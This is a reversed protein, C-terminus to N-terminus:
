SASPLPDIRTSQGKHQERVARSLNLSSGLIALIFAALGWPLVHTERSLGFALLGMNSYIFTISGWLLNAQDHERRHLYSFTAGVIIVIGSAFTLFWLFADLRITSVMVDLVGGLLSLATALVASDYKEL